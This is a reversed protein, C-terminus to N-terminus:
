EGAGAKGGLGVTRELPKIQSLMRQISTALEPASHIPFVTGHLDRTLLHIADPFERGRMFSPFYEFYFFRGGDNELAKLAQKSVKTDYRSSPGLFIVADSPVPRALEEQSLKALFEPQAMSELAHVPVTHIEAERLSDSLRDLSKSNFNEDRFLERRQDLNFAILRLSTYPMQRVLSLLTELLFLRDWAYLTAAHQNMPAAHLLVTLRLGSKEGASKGNWPVFMSPLATNPGIALPVDRERNKRAVQVPWHRLFTRRTDDAVLLDVLYKGEGATFNGSMQIAVKPFPAAKAQIEPDAPRLHHLERLILPKGEQPTIRVYLAVGTGPQFQALGCNVLFRVDFRFAFDLEPPLHHLDCKLSGDARPNAEFLRNVTAMEARPVLDQARAGTALTLAALLLAYRVAPWFLRSCEVSSKLNRLRFNADFYSLLAAVGPNEAPTLGDVVASSVLFM